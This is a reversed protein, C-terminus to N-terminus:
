RWRPVAEHVARDAAGAGSTWYVIESGDRSVVSTKIETNIPMEACEKARDRDTDAERRGAQSQM